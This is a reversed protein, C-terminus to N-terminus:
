QSPRRSQGAMTQPQDCSLTCVPSSFMMRPT